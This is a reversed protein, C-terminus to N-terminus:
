QKNRDAEIRHLEAIVPKDFADYIEALNQHVGSRDRPPVLPLITEFDALAANWRQLKMLITGRTDRYRYDAPRKALATEIMALARPLDPSDGQALLWALNNAVDAMSPQLELARETHWLADDHEGDMWKASGLAFHAIAISNGEAIQQELMRILVGRDDPSSASQYLALMKGYARLNDADLEIAKAVLLLKKALDGDSGDEVADIKMLMLESAARRLALVQPSADAGALRLGELVLADAEALRQNDVYVRTLDIRTLHDFPNKTIKAALHAEARESAIKWQREDRLNACLQATALWRSPELQSADMQRAIAEGPQGAALYYATWLDALEVPQDLGSRTLHLRVLEWQSQNVMSPETGNSPDLGGGGRKGKTLAAVVQIAKLRHAKSYGIGDDPALRDLLSQGGAIDGTRFKALALNLDDDPDRTRGLQIM